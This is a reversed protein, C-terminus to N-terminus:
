LRGAGHKYAGRWAESFCRDEFGCRNQHCSPRISSHEPYVTPDHSTLRMEGLKQRCAYAFRHGVRRRMQCEIGYAILQSYGSAGQNQRDIIEVRERELTLL